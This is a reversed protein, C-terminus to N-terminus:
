LMHTTVVNDEVRIVGQDETDEGQWEVKGNLTYGWRKLFHEVIYELWKVYDYFKEGGDWRICTGENNPIWQCWLGPQGEPPHNGNLISADKGRILDTQDNVFYGGEPGVPLNAAFRYPDDMERVLDANRTMRRSESFQRLYEAHAKSLPPTVTFEGRFDTSYGM